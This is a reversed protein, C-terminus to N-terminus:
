RAGERLEAARARRTSAWAVVMAVAFLVAATAAAYGVLTPLDITAPLDPSQSDASGLRIQGLVVRQAVVGAVLGAVAAVGLTVSLEVLGARLTTWRSVGVVRLAAADRRRGPMGVVLHAVVGALALFLLAAAVVVYLRLSLAYADNGLLEEEAALRRPQDVDVGADALGDLVDSPLGERALIYTEAVIGFDFGERTFAQLDLMVGSRGLLPIAESVGAVRVPLGGETEGLATVADPLMLLEGGPVSVLPLRVDATVVIPRVDPVDTPTFDATGYSGATDVELRLGSSTSEAAMNAADSSDYPRQRRWADDEGFGADVPEGDVTLEHLTLEGIMSDPTAATGGLVLGVLDCGGVCFPAEGSVTADGRPIDPLMLDRVRGAADRLELAVTLGDAIEVENTVALVVRRGDFSPPDRPSRLLSAVEAADDGVGWADPWVGVAGLRRTDVAVVPPEQPATLAVAAMLWRGDPDLQETLGLARDPPMPATYALDAGVRSAAVSARWDAAAVHVGIAFIGVGLSVALPLVVLTGERRRALRRSSLYSALRRRRATRGTLLRALLVTAHGALLGVALALLVPVTLDVLGPDDREPRDAVIATAVLATVVIAAQVVLDGRGLARPRATEVLQERLQERMVHVLSIAAAALGAVTVAAVGVLSGVTLDVPVGPRLWAGGMWGAVWWGVLGGIPAALVLVLAPEFLGFAWLRRRSWGRLALLAFEGRRLDASEGLLRLLVLMAVLSLSLSAPLVTNRATVREAEVVDVVYRLANRDARGLTGGAVRVPERTREADAATALADAAAPTLSPDVMLRRDVRVSWDSAPLRAFTEPVTVFPAPQYPTVLGVGTGRPASVFRAPDFWNEAPDRLRYTGVVLANSLGPALAARHGVRYGGREVDVPAVLIEFPRRPCRGSVLVLRECGDEFANLRASTPLDIPEEPWDYGVSTLTPVAPAFADPGHREGARVAARMAARPDTTRAAPDFEWALGAAAAPAADLRTVLLSNTAARLYMPGVVAAAVGVVALIAVGVTLVARSRLGRVAVALAHTTTPSRRAM